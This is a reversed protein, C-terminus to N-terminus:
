QAMFTATVPQDGQMVPMDVDTMGEMGFEYKGMEGTDQHLMLTYTQGAMVPTDLNIEVNTNEGVKVMAHGIHGGMKGDQMAHVVLFGDASTMVSPVTITQGGAMTGSVDIMAEQAYAASTLVSAAIAAAITKMRIM